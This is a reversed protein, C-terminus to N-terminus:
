DVRRLEGLGHSASSCQGRVETEDLDNLPGQALMVLVIACGMWM